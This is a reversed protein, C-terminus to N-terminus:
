FAAFKTLKEVVFGVEEDKQEFEEDTGNTKFYQRLLGSWTSKNETTSEIGIVDEIVEKAEDLEVKFADGEVSEITQDKHAIEQFDLPCGFFYFYTLYAFVVAFLSAASAIFTFLKNEDIGIVRLNEFQHFKIFAM